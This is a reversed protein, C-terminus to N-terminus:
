IFYLLKIKCNNAPDVLRMKGTSEAEASVLIYYQYCYTILM